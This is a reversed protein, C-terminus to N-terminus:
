GGFVLIDMLRASDTPLTPLALNTIKHSAWDKDTDIVLKSLILDGLRLSDNADVPAGLNKIVHGAWDKDVDITMLSLRPAPTIIDM